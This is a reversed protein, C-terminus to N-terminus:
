PYQEQLIDIGAFEDCFQRCELLVRMGGAPIPSMTGTVVM